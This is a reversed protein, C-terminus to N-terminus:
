RTLAIYCTANDVHSMNCAEIPNVSTSIVGGICAGVLAVTAVVLLCAFDTM